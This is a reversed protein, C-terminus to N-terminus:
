PEIPKSAVLQIYRAVLNYPSRNAVAKELDLLADVFDAEDLRERPVYDAFVRVGCTAKPALGLDVLWASVQEATYATGEINFLGACFVGEELRALAGAPDARSWVQRLVEAHRNVFSLSLVGGERLLDTLDRLASCPAPLYEILTHCTIVDFFGPEFSCPVQDAAMECLTLRARVKEPLGRAARKAQDLMAPASDSLWVLYGRQILRLALEGSGGGVDLVRPPHDPDAVDPLYPALNHWVIECRMRGLPKRNYDAWAEAGLEFRAESDTMM